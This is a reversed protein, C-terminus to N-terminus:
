PQTRNYLRRGVPIAIAPKSSPIGSAYRQDWLRAGAARAKAPMLRQLSTGQEATHGAYGIPAKETAGGISRAVPPYVMSTIHVINNHLPMIM